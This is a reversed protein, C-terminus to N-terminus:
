VDPTSTGDEHKKDIENLRNRIDQASINPDTMDVILQRLSTRAARNVRWNRDFGGAVSITILIAAFAALIASVDARFAVDKLLDLKLLLAAIASAVPSLYLATHYLFSWWNTWRNYVKYRNNVELELATREEPTM